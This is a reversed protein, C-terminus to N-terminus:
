VQSSYLEFLNLDEENIQLSETLIYVNISELFNRINSYPLVSLFRLTQRLKLILLRYSLRDFEVEAKLNDYGIDNQTSM